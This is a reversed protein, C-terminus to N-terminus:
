PDQSPSITMTYYLSIAQYVMTIDYYGDKRLAGAHLYLNLKAPIQLTIPTFQNPDPLGM